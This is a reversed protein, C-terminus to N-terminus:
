AEPSKVAVPEEVCPSPRKELGEASLDAVVLGQVQGPPITQGMSVSESAAAVQLTAPGPGAAEHQSGSLCVASGPASGEGAEMGGAEPEIKVQLVIM